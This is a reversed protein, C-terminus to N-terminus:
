MKSDIRSMLEVIKKRCAELENSMREIEGEYVAKSNNYMDIIIQTSTKYANEVAQLPNHIIYEVKHNSQFNTNNNGDQSYISTKELPIDKLWSIGIDLVDAIRCLIEDDLTEKREWDSITQQSEGLLSAVYEQSYGKRHRYHRINDGHHVTLISDDDNSKKGKGGKGKSRSETM